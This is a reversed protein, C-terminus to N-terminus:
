EPPLRQLILLRSLQIQVGQQLRIQSQTRDAEICLAVANVLSERQTANRHDLVYHSRPLAIDGAGGGWESLQAFHVRGDEIEFHTSKQLM